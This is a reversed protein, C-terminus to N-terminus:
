QVEYAGIDVHAGSLRPLGRQDTALNDPPGTLSDDGADIAPSTPKLAMTKTPGGNDGLVALKPAINLLDSGGTTFCSGDDDLNHGTSSM